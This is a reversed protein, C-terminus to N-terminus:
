RSQESVIDVPPPPAAVIPATPAPAPAAPAPPQEGLITTLPVANTAVTAGAVPAPAPALTTPISPGPTTAVTSVTAPEPTAQRETLGFFGVLGFAVVGSTGATVIRAIEAPKGGRTRAAMRDLAATAAADGDTTM